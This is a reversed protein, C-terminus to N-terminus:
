YGELSGQVVDLIRQEAVKLSLYTDPFLQRHLPLYQRFIFSFPFLGDWNKGEKWGNREMRMRRANMEIKWENEMGRVSKDGEGGGGEERTGDKGDIIEEKRGNRETRMRRENMEIKREVEMGRM